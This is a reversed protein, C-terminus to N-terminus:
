LQENHRIPTQLHSRLLVDLNMNYFLFQYNKRSKNQGLNHNPFVLDLITWCAIIGGVIIFIITDPLQLSTQKHGFIAKKSLEWLIKAWSFNPAPSFLKEHHNCDQSRVVRCRVEWAWAVQLNPPSSLLSKASAWKQTWKISKIWLPLGSASPTCM